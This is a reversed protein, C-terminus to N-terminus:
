LINNKMKSQLEKIAELLVATFGMYNLSRVGDGNIEVLEPFHAEVEQAILGLHRKGDKTDIRNYTYGNIGEIRNLVDTLQRMNTKLAADSYATVNGTAVVNGANDVTLVDQTGNWIRAINGSAYIGWINAGSRNQFYLTANNGLSRIENDVYLSGGNYIRMRGTADSYIGTANVENYLGEGSHYNRFWANSYIQAGYLNVDTKNLNGTNWATSADQKQGILTLTTTAFNPDDGLAAALENLTNLAAPSSDVLAAIQTNVYSETAYGALSPISPKNSLDNYSGSTAVTAFTPKGSINAWAHSHGAQFDAVTAYDL